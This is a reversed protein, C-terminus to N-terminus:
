SDSWRLGVYVGSNKLNFLTNNSRQSTAELNIGMSWMKAVPVWYGLGWEARSTRSKLEGLLESFINQDQSLSYRLWASLQGSAAPLMSVGVLQEHRLLLENRGRNGGPRSAEQAKDQGGGLAFLTEQNKGLSCAWEIRAYDYTGNLSESQPFRQEIRGVSPSWKCTGGMSDWAYKLKLGSDQYATQNGIWFQTGGLAVQWVGSAAGALMPLSYKISGEATRNNGGMSAADAKYALAANV